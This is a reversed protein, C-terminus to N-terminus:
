REAAVTTPHLVTAFAEAFVVPDLAAQVTALATDALARMPGAIAYKIQRHVQDALRFLTAARLYQGARPAPTPHPTLLPHSPPRHYHIPLLWRHGLIHPPVDM